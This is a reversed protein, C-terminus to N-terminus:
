INYAVSYLDFMKRDSQFVFMLSLSLLYIIVFCIDRTPFILSFVNPVNVPFQLIIIILLVIAQELM